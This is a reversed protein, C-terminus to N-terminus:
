GSNKDKWRKEAQFTRKPFTWVCFKHKNAAKQGSLFVEVLFIDVWRWLEVSAGYEVGKDFLEPAAYEASGCQTKLLNDKNFFNSLGFDVLKVKSQSDTLMINQLKLDRHIIGHDHLYRMALLLQNFYKRATKEILKKQKQEQIYALLNGGELYEM